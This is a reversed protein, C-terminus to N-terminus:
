IGIHPSIQHWLIVFFRWWLIKIKFKIMSESFNDIQQVYVLFYIIYNTCLRMSFGIHSILDCIIKTSKFVPLCDCINPCSEKLVISTSIFKFLILFTEVLTQNMCAIVYRSPTKSKVKVFDGLYVTAVQPTHMKM